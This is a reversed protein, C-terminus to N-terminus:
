GPRTLLIMLLSDKSARRFRIFFFSSSFSHSVCVAGVLVASSRTGLTVSQARGTVLGVRSGKNITKRASLVARPRGLSGGLAQGRRVALFRGGRAHARGAPDRRCEKGGKGLFFFWGLFFVGPFFFLPPPFFFFPSCFLLHEVRGRRGLERAHRAPKKGNAAPLGESATKTQGLATQASLLVIV